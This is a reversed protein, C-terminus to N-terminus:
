QEVCILMHRETIPSDAMITGNSSLTRTIQGITGQIGSWYAASTPLTSEFVIFYNAFKYPVMTPPLEMGGPCTAKAFTVALSLIIWRKDTDPDVWEDGISPQGNQGPTGREGQVGDKGATGDKGDKGDFGNYGDKGEHGPHGTEGAPGRTPDQVTTDAGPSNDKPMYDDASGCGFLFVLFLFAKM